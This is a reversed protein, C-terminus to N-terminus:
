VTMMTSASTPTSPNAAPYKRARNTVLRLTCASSSISAM